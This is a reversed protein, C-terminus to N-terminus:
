QPEVSIWDKDDVTEPEVAPMTQAAEASIGASRPGQCV